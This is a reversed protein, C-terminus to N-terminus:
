LQQCGAGTVNIVASTRKENSLTKSYTPMYGLFQFVEHPYDATFLSPYGLEKAMRAVLRLTRVTADIEDAPSNTKYSVKDTVSGLAIVEVGLLDSDKRRTTGVGSVTPAYTLVGLPLRNSPYVAGLGVISDTVGDVTIYLKTNVMVPLDDWIIACRYDTDDKEFFWQYYDTAVTGVAVTDTFVVTGGADEITITVSDGNINYLAVQEYPEAMDWGLTLQEFATTQFVPSPEYISLPNIIGVREWDKSISLPEFPFATTQVSLFTRGSQYPLYRLAYYHLVSSTGGIQYPFYAGEPDTQVTLDHYTWGIYEWNDNEGGWFTKFSHPPLTATGDGGQKRLYWFVLVDLIGSLPDSTEVTKEDPIGVKYYCYNDYITTSGERLKEYYGIAVVEGPALNVYLNCGSGYSTAQTVGRNGRIEMFNTGNIHFDMDPAPIRPAIVLDYTNIGASAPSLLYPVAQNNPIVRAMGITTPTQGADNPMPTGDFVTDAVYYNKVYTPNWIVPSVYMKYPYIPGTGLTTAGEVDYFTGTAELSTNNGDRTSMYIDNGSRVLAGYLFPANAANYRPINYDELANNLIQKNVTVPIPPNVWLKPQICLLPM